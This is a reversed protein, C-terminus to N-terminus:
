AGCGSCPLHRVELCGRCEVPGLESAQIGALVAGCLAREGPMVVPTCEDCLLHVMRTPNIDERVVSELQVTM